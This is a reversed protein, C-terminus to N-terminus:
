SACNVGAFDSRLGHVCSADEVLQIQELVQSALITKDTSGEGDIDESCSVGSGLGGNELNGDPSAAGDTDVRGGGGVQGLGLGRLVAPVVTM